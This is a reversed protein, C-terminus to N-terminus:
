PASAGVEARVWAAYEPSADLRQWVLQPLRYPHEAGLFTRLPDLREPLTKVTLRWEAEACASGEWRYHSELRDLQVCAALRRELLARALRRADDETGVTTTLALIDTDHWPM